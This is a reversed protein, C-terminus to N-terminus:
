KFKKLLKSYEKHYGEEKESKLYIALLLILALEAFGIALTSLKPCLIYAYAIIGLAALSLLISVITLATRGKEYHLKKRRKLMTVCYASAFILSAAILIWSKACPAIPVRIKQGEASAALAPQETVAPVCTQSEAPKDVAQRCNPDATVICNRAQIGTGDPQASCEKWSDCIWRNYCDASASTIACTEQLAPMNITTGCGKSDVCTRTRVGTRSSGLQSKCESWADCSWSEACSSGGGGGGSGGGSGSSTVVLSVSNSSVSAGEADFAAFTVTASGTWSAAPSLTAIGTSNDITVVISATSVSYSYNLDDGDDDSFYSSIDLTKNTNATWSQSPITGSFEPASNQITVNATVATGNAYGDYPIATCNWKNGKATVSSSLTNYATASQASTAYIVSNNRWIFTYNISDGDADTHSTANCLIDDNTKPSTPTLSIAIVPLSNTQTAASDNVWTANRNGYSDATRTQLQYGSGRQLGTANYYNFASSVNALWTGNLWVETHNFDDEGVPNTWSWYIWSLNYSTENLGTVTAPPTTDQVTLWHTEYSSSYNETIPYKATYNHISLTNWTTTNQLSNAGSNILLGNLYLEIAGSAPTLLTANATASSKREITRNSDFGDLTLNVESGARSIVFTSINEAYEFTATQSANCVYGYGAPKAALAILKNNETANVNTGDRFLNVTGNGDCSCSANIQLSPAYAQPSALNFSLSCNAVDLATIRLLQSATTATYNQTATNNCGYNYDGIGLIAVDPNSVLGTDNRFLQVAVQNTNAYCSVNTQSGGDKVTWAHPAFFNLAPTGPNVTYGAPATTASSYNETASSNCIYTYSNAGLLTPINNEAITVNTGDRWLKAEGGAEPNACSCSANITENYTASGAPNVSLSCTTINQNLTVFFTKSSATYNENGTNIVTYNYPAANAALTVLTNNEGNIPAGNRYMTAALNNTSFIATITQPYILTVNNEAGNLSLNVYTISKNIQLTWIERSATYNENGPNTANYTYNGAALTGVDSVISNTGIPAGNRYLTLALASTNATANTQSGYIISKNGRNGDLRLETTTNSQNIVLISSQTTPATYNQTATANCSYNYSGAALTATEYTQALLLGNRYLQQSIQPTSSTCNATTSTGYTEALSPTINLTLSSGLKTVNLLRVASSGASYNAGGTTNYVYYYEGAALINLDSVYSGNGVNANNRSLNLVLDQSNALMSRGTANSQTGYAITFNAENGNLTLNLYQSPDAKSITYLSSNVAYTYNQTATANCSYNYPIASAALLVFQNNSGTVDQGDRWLKAEGGTEPNACSCSANLQTGYTQPSVAPDFLLSCTTIAQTITLISSNEQPATYNQTATANCSYNYSGAALTATEYTQALLSSNRYLQQFIQPTSSTCNATTPAGYSVTTSPTINLSLSSAAQQVVYDFADSATWQNATDNAHSKWYYNGAAIPGYNYFSESSVNGTRTYNTASGTFNHEFWVSSIGADDTWTINFQYTATPSYVAPSTPYTKNLSWTPPDDAQIEIPTGSGLGIPQSPNVVVSFNGVGYNTSNLTVNVIAFGNADTVDYDVVNGAADTLNVQRGVLASGAMNTVNVPYHRTLTATGGISSSPIPYIEGSINAILGAGVISLTSINSKPATFIVVPMRYLGSTSLYVTTFNSNAITNSSNGYFYTIGAFRSNSINNTSREQANVDNTFHSDIIRNNSNEGLTVAATFTSMILAHSKNGLITVQSLNTTLNNFEGHGYWMVNFYKAVPFIVNSKIISSIITLNADASVNIDYNQAAENLILSSNRLVFTATDRLLLTQNQFYLVSNNCEVFRSGNIIWDTGPDPLGCALITISDSTTLTEFAADSCTTNYFYLGAPSFIRSFNYVQRASDNVMNYTGDYFTINCSATTIPAGSTRNTYNAYFTVNEYEVASGQFFPMAPDTEDWITLNSNAGATYNSFGAVAFTFNNGTYGTANCSPSPCLVGDKLVIPTKAFPLNYLTLNASRNYYPYRSANLYISNNTAIFALTANTVDTSTQFLIKGYNNRASNETSNLQLQQNVAVLVDIRPFALGTGSDYINNGTRKFLDLIMDPSANKNSLLRERQQILAAAGAIHPAAMSTGQYASYGGGVVTSTIWKGPALVDLRAGRNTGGFVNFSSITDAITGGSGDDVSGVSMVHQLCSPWSVGTIYGNNGSAVDVFIGLSYSTNISAGLGYDPCTASSYAGSDGLSMTIVTINYILYNSNCWDVGAIIDEASTSGSANMIKLAVLTAGPAVGKYVNNTSAVIGAVHTGHSNVDMPDNDMFLCWIDDACYDYGSLVKPCNGALFQAQTCNGLATHRYDIGTDVVCVTQGTGNIRAGNVTLNWVDDANILPVSEALTAQAPADFYIAEVSPNTSLLSLEDRTVRASFGNTLQYRHKIRLGKKIGKTAAEGKSILKVGKKGLEEFVVDQNQKVKQKIRDLKAEKSETLQTEIAPADKLMVIIDVEGKERLEDLVKESVSATFNFNEQIFLGTVGAFGSIGGPLMTAGLILAAVVLIAFLEYHLSFNPAIPSPDSPAPSPIPEINPQSFDPLPLAVATRPTIKTQSEQKIEIQKSQKKERLAIEKELANKYDSGLYISKVKGRAYRV